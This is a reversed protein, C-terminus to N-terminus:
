AEFNWTFVVYLVKADWSAEKNVKSRVQAEWTFDLMSEWTSKQLEPERSGNKNMWMKIKWDWKGM